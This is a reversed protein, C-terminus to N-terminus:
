DKVICLLRATKWSNNNPEYEYGNELAEAGDTDNDTDMYTDTSDFYRATSDINGETDNDAGSNDRGVLRSCHLTGGYLPPYILNTEYRVLEVYDVHYEVQPQEKAALFVWVGVGHIRNHLLDEETVHRATDLLLHIVVDVALEHQKTATTGTTTSYYSQAAATTGDDKCEKIDKDNNNNNNDQIEFFCLLTFQLLYNACLNLTVLRTVKKKMLGGIRISFNINILWIAIRSKL